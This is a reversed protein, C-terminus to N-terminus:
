LSGVEPRAPDLFMSSSRVAAHHPRRAHSSREATRARAGSTCQTVLRTEMSMAALASRAAPADGAMTWERRSTGSNVGRQSATHTLTPVSDSPQSGEMRAAAEAPRGQTSSGTAAAAESNRISAQRERRARRGATTLPFADSIRARAERESAAEEEEEVVVKVFIRMWTRVPFETGRLTEFFSSTELNAKKIKTLALPVELVPVKRTKTVEKLVKVSAGERRIREAMDNKNWHSLVNSSLVVGITGLVVGNCFKTGDYVLAPLDLWSPRCGANGPLLDVRAPRLPVLFTTWQSAAAMVKVAGGNATKAGDAARTPPGCRAVAAVAM